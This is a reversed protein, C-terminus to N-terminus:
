ISLTLGGQVFSFGGRLVAFGGQQFSEPSLETGFLAILMFTGAFGVSFILLILM